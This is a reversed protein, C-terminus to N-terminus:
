LSVIIEQSFACKEVNNKRFGGKKLLSSLPQGCLHPNIIVEVQLKLALSHRCFTVEFLLKIGFILTM